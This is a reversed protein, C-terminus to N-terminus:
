NDSSSMELLFDALYDVPDAPMITAINLLGKNLVPVINDMLYARINCYFIGQPSQRLKKFKKFM